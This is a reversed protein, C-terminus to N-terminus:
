RLQVPGKERSRHRPLGPHPGAAQLDAGLRWPGGSAPRSRPGVGSLVPQAEASMAAVVRAKGPPVRAFTEISLEFQNKAKADKIAANAKDRTASSFFNANDKIEGAVAVAVPPSLNKDVTDFVFVVAEALGKDFDNNKFSALLLDRLATRDAASFSKKLTADDVVVEMGPKKVIQLYIGKIGLLAPM